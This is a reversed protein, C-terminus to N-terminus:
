ADRWAFRCVLPFHDSPYVGMVKESRIESKMPTIGGRYLVWDIHDGQRSGSFGHHTGPYPPPFANSFNDRGLAENNTFLEYGPSGPAANFDGAIITPLDMPKESLRNLIVRASEAQVSPSFDFHTNICRIERNGCRFNGITCQRPWRSEPFRSPVRPTPSLFFHDHFTCEWHASYFIVNNQWFKPAPARKGIYRYGGLRHDLETVQFDNAEQLCILDPNLSTLLHAVADRRNHWGNAGDEALGFRLNMTVIKFGDSTGNRNEAATM